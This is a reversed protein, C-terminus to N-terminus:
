VNQKWLLDVDKNFFAQYLVYAQAANLGKLELHGNEIFPLYDEAIWGFKKDSIIEFVYTMLEKNDIGSVLLDYSLVSLEIPKNAFENIEVIANELTDNNEFLHNEPNEFNSINQDIMQSM